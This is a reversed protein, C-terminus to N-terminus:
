YIILFVVIFEFTAVGHPLSNANTKSDADWSADSFNSSVDERHLGLAIAELAM